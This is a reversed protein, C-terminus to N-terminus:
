NSDTESNKFPDKEGGRYLDGNESVSLNSLHDRKNVSSLRMKIHDLYKGPIDQRM